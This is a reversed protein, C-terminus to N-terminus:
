DVEVVCSELGDVADGGGRFSLARVEDAPGDLVLDEAEFRLTHALCVAQPRIRGLVGAGPVKGLFPPLSATASRTPPVTHVLGVAVEGLKNSHLYSRVDALNGALNRQSLVLAKGFRADGITVIDPPEWPTASWALLHVRGPANPRLLVPPRRRMPNAPSSPSPSVSRDHRPGPMALPALNGAPLRCESACRIRRKRSIRGEAQGPRAIRGVVSFSRAPSSSSLIRFSRSDQVHALIARQGHQLNQNVKGGRNGVSM